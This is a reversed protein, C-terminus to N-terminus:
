AAISLAPGSGTPLRITFTSGKGVQSEVEISGDNAELLTKVVMLGLGLGQSKTTFLPEFLRAMEEQSIGRGTDAVFLAVQSEEAEAGITLHGGESMAQYANVVLNTLVQEMQQSDVFVPPLDAAIRTTVEVNKSPHQKKLVQAVLYSVTTEEREAPRTRSFDLLDSIIKDSTCVVESIIQLNEQVDEDADALVMKLYYLANSMVTLPGRLEHGVGGAMQGLLALKEKRLLKEQADRLEKTRQEVMEELRESYEKLEEEARKRETIDGVVVVTSGLATGKGWDKWPQVRVLVHRKLFEDYAECQAPQGRIAEEWAGELFSSLYCSSGACGPHLIEHVGRGKVNAVRGLKWTEVIRNARIIRGGDDVLCVLDSLSDATSEWEQKAREIRKLLEKLEEEVRKRGTIDRLVVAQGALRGQLDVLRSIRMDYNRHEDEVGLIVKDSRGAEDDSREILIPWDPWIQEIPQGIAESAAHGVLRQAAPNLAVVRNKVDLAIVGDSISEISVGRAIPVM